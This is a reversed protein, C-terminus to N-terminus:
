VIRKTVLEAPAWITDEEVSDTGSNKEFVVLYPHRLLGYITLINKKKNNVKLLSLIKKDKKSTIFTGGPPERISEVVGISKKGPKLRSPNGFRSLVFYASGYPMWVACVSM